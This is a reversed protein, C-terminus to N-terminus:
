LHVNLKMPNKFIKTSFSFFRLSFVYILGSRRWQVLSRGPEPATNVQIFVFM